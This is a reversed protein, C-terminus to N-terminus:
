SSLPKVYLSCIDKNGHKHEEEQNKEEQELGSFALLHEKAANSTQFLDVVSNTTGLDIGIIYRQDDLNM